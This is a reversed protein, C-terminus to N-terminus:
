GNRDLLGSQRFGQRVDQQGFDAGHPDAPHLSSDGMGKDVTQVCVAVHAFGEVDYTLNGPGRHLTSRQITPM